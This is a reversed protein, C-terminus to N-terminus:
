PVTGEDLDRLDALAIIDSHGSEMCERFNSLSDSKILERADTVFRALRNRTKDYFAYDSIRDRM